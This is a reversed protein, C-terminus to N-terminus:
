GGSANYREREAKSFVRPQLDKLVITLDFPARGIKTASRPYGQGPGRPQESGIAQMPKNDSGVAHGIGRCQAVGEESGTGVEWRGAALPYGM